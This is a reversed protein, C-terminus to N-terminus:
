SNKVCLEKKVYGEKGEYVVKYYDGPNEYIMIHANVPITTLINYPTMEPTKRMNSLVKVKGGVGVLKNEAPKTLIPEEEVIEKEITVQSGSDPLDFKNIEAESRKEFEESRHSRNEDYYRRSMEKGGYVHIM